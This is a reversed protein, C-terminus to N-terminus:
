HLSVMMGPPGVPGANGPAGPPGPWGQILTIFLEDRYQFNDDNCVPVGARGPMGQDGRPGPVVGNLGSSEGPEGQHDLISFIM